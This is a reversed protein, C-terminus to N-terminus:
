RHAFVRNFNKKGFNRFYLEMADEKTKRKKLDVLFVDKNFGDSNPLNDRIRKKVTNVDSFISSKTEIYARLSNYEELDIQRLLHPEFLCCLTELGVPVHTTGMEMCFINIHFIAKASAGILLAQIYPNYILQDSASPDPHFLLSIVLLSILSILGYIICYIHLQLSKSILFGYTTPYKSTCVELLNILYGCFFTLLCPALLSFDVM